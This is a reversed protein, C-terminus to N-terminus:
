RSQVLVRFARGLHEPHTLTQFQRTRKSDWEPPLQGRREMEKVIGVLFQSQTQQCETALGAGEGTERIATFNVHATLDQKGPDALLDAGVQHRRYARLTGDRREPTFFELADLGYDFAVLKGARLAGAASRWWDIAALNIETTFDQPLLELLERPLKALGGAEIVERRAALRTWELAGDGAVRVGWEFWERKGADWGLRHAPMADLLENSFIIGQVGAASIEEWSGFWRAKGAFGALAARQVARRAESPELIWYEFAEWLQPRNAKVWGLIDLALRGDHAGAEVLQRVGSAAGELWDAFRYALLEGFLGGVSVSTYFDGERGPAMGAQEYYGSKPCYLALEMFRRFTIVGERRAEGAIIERVDSMLAM